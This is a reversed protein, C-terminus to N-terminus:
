KEELLHHTSVSPSLGFCEDHKYYLLVILKSNIDHYSLLSQDSIFNTCIEYGCNRKKSDERPDLM